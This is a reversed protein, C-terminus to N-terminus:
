LWDIVYSRIQLGFGLCLFLAAWVLGSLSDIFPEKTAQPVDRYDFWREVLSLAIKQHLRRKSSRTADDTANRAISAQQRLLGRVLLFAGLFNFCLGTIALGIKM